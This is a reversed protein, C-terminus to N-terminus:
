LDSLYFFAESGTRFLIKKLPFLLLSKTCMEHLTKTCVHFIERHNTRMRHNKELSSVLRIIKSYFGKGASLKIFYLVFCVGFLLM